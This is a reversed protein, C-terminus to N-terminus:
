EKVERKTKFHTIIAMNSLMLIAGSIGVVGYLGNRTYYSGIGGIVFLILGVAIINLDIWDMM